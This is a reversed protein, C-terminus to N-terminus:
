GMLRSLSFGSSRLGGRGGRDGLGSAAQGPSTVASSADNTFRPGIGGRGSWGTCRGGYACARRGTDPHSWQLIGSTHRCVLTIADRENHTSNEIRQNFLLLGKLSRSIPRRQGTRDVMRRTRDVLVALRQRRLIGPLNVTPRMRRVIQIVACLRSRPGDGVGRPTSGRQWRPATSVQWTGRRRTFRRGHRRSAADIRELRGDGAAEAEPTTMKRTAPNRVAM